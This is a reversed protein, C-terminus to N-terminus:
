AIKYSQGIYKNNIIQKLVYRLSLFFVFVVGLLLMISATPLSEALSFMLEKWYSILVGGSFALSLYEYFGSKAFNNALIGLTPVLGALSVLCLFSFVALKFCAMRKERTSIKRWIDNALESKPLYTARQFVKKLREEMSM